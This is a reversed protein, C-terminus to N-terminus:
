CVTTYTIADPTFGNQKMKHFLKLSGDFKGSRVLCSLVSNCIFVNNKMSEEPISNYIELAKAPNLSKGMFKM